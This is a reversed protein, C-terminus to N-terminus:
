DLADGLPKPRLVALLNTSFLVPQGGMFLHRLATGVVQRAWLGGALKLRGALGSAVVSPVPSRLSEVEFGALTAVQRLMGQGIATCHTVDGNQVPASFPNDGNPFRLLVHADRHCVAHVSRLFPVLHAREIHELVDFATVLQYREDPEHPLAAEVSPWAAFGAAKAREILRPNVEVGSCVWRKQDQAWGMFNGNGFGIDLVRSAPPLHLQSAATERAFYSTQEASCQGFQNAQWGQAHEYGDYSM